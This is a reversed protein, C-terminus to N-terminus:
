RTSAPPIRDCIMQRYPLFRFGHKRYLAVAATNEEEVELRLRNAEPYAEKLFRFFEGGLGKGRHQPRIYIDEVWVCLGGAEVAWMKSVAAYGADEGDACLIYGDMYPGGRLIEAFVADFHSPPLPHEVADTAYFELSLTKYLEHDAPTMKRIM